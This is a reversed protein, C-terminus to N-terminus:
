WFESLFIRATLTAVDLAGHHSWRHAHIQLPTWPPLKMNSDMKVDEKELMSAEINEMNQIPPKMRPKGVDLGRHWLPSLKMDSNM